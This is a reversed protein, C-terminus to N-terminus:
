KIVSFDDFDEDTLNDIYEDKKSDYLRIIGKKRKTMIGHYIHYLSDIIYAIFTEDDWKWTFNDVDGSFNGDYIDIEIIRGFYDMVDQWMNKDWKLKSLAYKVAVKFNRLPVNLKNAVEQYTPYPMELAVVDQGNNSVKVPEESPTLLFKIYQTGKLNKPLGIKDIFGQLFENYEKSMM